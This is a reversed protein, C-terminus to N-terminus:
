PDAPEAAQRRLDAGLRQIEMTRAQLDHDLGLLRTEAEALQTRAESLARREVVLSDELEEVGRHRLVLDLRALTPDWPTLRAPDRLFSDGERLADYQVHWGRERESSLFRPRRQLFVKRMGHAQSRIPYHRLIFRIPFVNRDPFRAEHGGSSALDAPVELKKWCRIQVRDWAQGREYFPFAERVDDGPRLRDHIPWF